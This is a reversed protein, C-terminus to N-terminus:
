PNIHNSSPMYNNLKNITYPRMKYLLIRSYVGLDYGVMGKECVTLGVKPVREGVWTSLGLYDGLPISFGHGLLPPSEETFEEVVGPGVLDEHKTEGEADPQGDEIRAEPEVLVIVSASGKLRGHDLFACM